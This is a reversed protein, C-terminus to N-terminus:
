HYRIMVFRCNYQYTYSYVTVKHICYVMRHVYM